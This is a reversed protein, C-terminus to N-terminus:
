DLLILRGAIDRQRFGLVGRLSALAASADAAPFNGSVRREGLSEDLVLIRGSHYRGITEIVDALRADHFALRGDRWGAVGDPDIQSVPEAGAAGFRIQQGRILMQGTGMAPHVGVRGDAVTVEVDGGLVNVDFRTGLVRIDGQGAAVVFPRGDRVVDFFARGRMLRIRRDGDSFDVAVASDADLALTSGDPLPVLRQEGSATVHDATMDQLLHPRELWVGGILLLLSFVAATMAARWRPPIGGEGPMDMRVLLRDLSESEERAVHEAAAASSNWAREAEAFCHQHIPAAEIWRAFARREEASPGPLNRLRVFWEQATREADPHMPTASM